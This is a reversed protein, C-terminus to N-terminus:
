FPLQHLLGYMKVLLGHTEPHDLAEKAAANLENINKKGNVEIIKIM